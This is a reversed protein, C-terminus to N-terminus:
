MVGPVRLIARRVSYMACMDVSPCTVSSAHIGCAFGNAQHAVTCPPSIGHDVEAELSLVVHGENVNVHIVKYGPINVIHSFIEM